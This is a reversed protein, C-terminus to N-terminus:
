VYALFNFILCLVIVAILNIINQKAKNEGTSNLSTIEHTAKLEVAGMSPCFVM